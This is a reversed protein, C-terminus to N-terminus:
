GKRLRRHLGMGIGFVVISVVPPLIYVKLPPPPELIIYYWASIAGKNNEEGNRGDYLTAAFPIFRGTEFIIDDKDDTDLKRIFIARYLGDKYNTLVRVDQKEQAKIDAPGRANLETGSNDSAKWQWINAPMKKSGMYFYPKENGPPIKSPFQLRAGDPPLGNDGKDPMKDTWELRIAVESGSYVGRARVNTTTPAFYRPEFIIQGAMPLDLYDVKEWLPDDVSSPISEVKTVRLAIGLKRQLQLSNIYCALSWREEDSLSDQYSTMPTGNLGTTVTRFIDELTAGNRLEWSHTQNAPYTRNGWDDAFDKEWGKEGDGRSVAGHCEWCKAEKFVDKGKQVKQDNCSPAKEMKIQEPKASFVDPAFKKIYGILSRVEDDSFREWAPMSTGPNGRRITRFLDEDTPSEGTPTTRFKFVGSTFDRPKPFTRDAAYGKGDGDYGHCQACWRDYLTKGADESFANVPLLLILILATLIVM